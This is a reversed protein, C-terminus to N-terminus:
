PVDSLGFSSSIRVDLEQARGQREDVAELVLGEHDLDAALDGVAVQRQVGEALLDRQERLDADVDDHDVAAALLGGLERLLEADLAAIQSSKEAINGRTLALAAKLANGRELTLKRQEEISFTKSSSSFSSFASFAAELDGNYKAQMKEFFGNAMTREEGNAFLYGRKGDAEWALVGVGWDKRGTHAFLSSSRSEHAAQTM